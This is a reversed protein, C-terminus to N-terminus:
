PRAYAEKKPILAVASSPVCARSPHPKREAIPVDVVACHPNFIHHEMWDQPACVGSYVAHINVEEMVKYRQHSDIQAFDINM